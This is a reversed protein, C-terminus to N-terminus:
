KKLIPHFTMKAMTGGALYQLPHNANKMARAKMPTIVATTPSIADKNPHTIPSFYDTVAIDNTARPVDNGSVNADLAAASYLLCASAAIPLTVPDLETLTNKPSPRGHSM